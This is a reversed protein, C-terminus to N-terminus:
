QEIQVEGIKTANSDIRRDFSKFKDEMQKMRRDLSTVTKLIEDIKDNIATMNILYDSDLDIPRFKLLKKDTSSIRCVQYVNKTPHITLYVSTAAFKIIQSNLVSLASKRLTWLKDQKSSM